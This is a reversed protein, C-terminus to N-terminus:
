LLGKEAAEDASVEVFQRNGVPIILPVGAALRATNIGGWHRTYNKYDPLNNESKFDSALPTRKHLKYFDRMAELLYAESYRTVDYGKNVLGAAKRANTLNGFTTILSRLLGGHSKALKRYGIHGNNAETLRQLRNILQDPCSGAKNRRELSWEKAGNIYERKGDRVDQRYKALGDVAKQHTEPTIQHKYVEARKVRTSRSSLPTMKSIQFKERYDDSNMKHIRLHQGLSAFLGGCEYCQLLEGDRTEAMTGMYGYGTDTTKLPEKYNTYVLDKMSM